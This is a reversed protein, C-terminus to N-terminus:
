EDPDSRKAQKMGEDTDGHKWYSSIYMQKRDIAKEDRFYRRVQRMTEFEGAFWPYPTGSLWPKQRIAHMLKTSDEPENNILWHLQMDKPKRIRQKDEEAGIQIIAYGKADDPLAELNVAIAPLATMDGALFFWDANPDALIKKGPGRVIVDDGPECQSLWKAAVGQDGHDVIDLTLHSQQKDFARITFSRLVVKSSDNPTFLMKVYGSEENPPFSKLAEGHLALRRMHPSISQSKLVQVHYENAM